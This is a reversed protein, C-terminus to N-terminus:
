KAKKIVELDTENIGQVSVIYWSPLEYVKGSKSTKEYYECDLELEAYKAGQAKVIRALEIVLGKNLTKAFYLISTHGNEIIRFYVKYEIFDYSKVEYDKDTTGSKREQTVREIKCYHAGKEITPIEALQELDLEEIEVSVNNLDMEQERNENKM